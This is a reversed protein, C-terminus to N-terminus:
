MVVRAGSSEDSSMVAAEMESMTGRTDTDTTEASVGDKQSVLKKRHNNKEM